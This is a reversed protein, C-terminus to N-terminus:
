YSPLMWHGYVHADILIETPVWASTIQESAFTFLNDSFSDDFLLKNNLIKPGEYPDWIIIDRSSSSKFWLLLFQFHYPLSDHFRWFITVDYM